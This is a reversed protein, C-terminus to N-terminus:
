QVLDTTANVIELAADIRGAESQYVAMAEDRAKPDYYRIITVPQPPGGTSVPLAGEKLGRDSLSKEILLDVQAFKRRRWIWEAITKTVTKDGLEISVKTAMNTKALQVLLGINDQVLDHCTQVWGKITASQDTGYVPQEFSLHAAHQLIKTKLDEIKAENEKLKKMAEILKM